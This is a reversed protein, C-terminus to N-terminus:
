EESRAQHHILLLRVGYTKILCLFWKTILHELESYSFQEKNIGRLDKVALTNGYRSKLCSWIQDLHNLKKIFDREKLIKVEKSSLNPSTFHALKNM